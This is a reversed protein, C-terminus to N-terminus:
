CEGPTADATEPAAEAEGDTSSDFLAKIRRALALRFEDIDEPMDDDYADAARPPHQSLLANLERLARTLTGLARATQEMERPRLPGAALRAITAEIAPLVRGVASQLRPAIAAPDSEAFSGADNCPGVHTAPESQEGGGQPSPDPTPTSTEFNAVTTSTSTEWAAAAQPPQEARPVPPPGERPIPARRRTWNWRRMRDRLRGSSIGHEACIDEVPRDTHEYDYRIQAWAETTLEPM